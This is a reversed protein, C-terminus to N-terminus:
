SDLVVGATLEEDEAVMAATYVEVEDPNAIAAKMLFDLFLSLMLKDEDQESSQPQLRVLLTDSGVVEVEGKAFLSTPITM